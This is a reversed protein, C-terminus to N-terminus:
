QVIAEKSHAADGGYVGAKFPDLGVRQVVDVFREVESDREALYTQVLKEVVDPIEARAFSRGIIKGIAAGGARLVGREDYAQDAGGSQRGGITVQYWE